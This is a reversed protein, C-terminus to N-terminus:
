YSVQEIRKDYEKQIRTLNKALDEISADPVMKYPNKEREKERYERRLQTLLREVKDTTMLSVDIHRINRESSDITFREKEISFSDERPANISRHVILLMFAGILGGAALIFTLTDADDM